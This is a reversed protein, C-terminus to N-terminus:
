KRFLKGVRRSQFMNIQLKHKYMGSVFLNRRAASLFIVLPHPKPIEGSDNADGDLRVTEMGDDNAVLNKEMPDQLTEVSVM